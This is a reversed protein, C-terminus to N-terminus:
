GRRGIGLSVKSVYSKTDTLEKELKNMKEDNQSMIKEALEKIEQKQKESVMYELALFVIALLVICVIDYTTAPRAIVKVFSLIFLIISGLQVYKKNM